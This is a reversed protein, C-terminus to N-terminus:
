DGRGIKRSNQTSLILTFLVEFIAQVTKESIENPLRYKIKGAIVQKIRKVVVPRWIDATAPTVGNLNDQMHNALAIGSTITTADTVVGDSQLNSAVGGIRKSGAKTSKGAVAFKFPFAMFASVTNTGAGGGGTIPISALDTDSFLNEADIQVNSVDTTQMSNVFSLIQDEFAEALAQAITGSTPTYAAIQEYFFVNNIRQGLLTQRLTLSYVDNVAL